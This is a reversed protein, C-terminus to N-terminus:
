KVLVIKGIEFVSLGLYVPKNMLMQTRKMETALLNDWFHEKYSLKRRAETTVLKIERIKRVNEVTKRFNKNNMLQFFYKKFYNKHIQNKLQINIDLHVKLSAELSLKNVRHAKKLVLRQNLAQKLYRIHIVLEKKIM